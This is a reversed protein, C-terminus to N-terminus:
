LRLMMKLASWLTDWSWWAAWLVLLIVPILLLAPSLHPLKIRPLHLLYRREKKKGAQELQTQIRSLQESITAAQEKTAYIIPRCAIRELLNNQAAMQCSLYELTNLLDNWEEQTPHQESPMQMQPPEPAPPLSQQPLNRQKLEEMSLRSDSELSM